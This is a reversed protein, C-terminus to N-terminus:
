VFIFEKTKKQKQVSQVLNFHFSKTAKQSYFSVFNNLKAKLQEMLHQRIFHQLQYIQRQDFLQRQVFRHFQHQQIQIQLHELRNQRQHEM